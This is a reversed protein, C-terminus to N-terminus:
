NRARRPVDTQSDECLQRLEGRLGIDDLWIRAQFHGENWLETEITLYNRHRGSAALERARGAIFARSEAKITEARPPLLAAPTAGAPPTDDNSPHKQAFSRSRFGKSVSAIEYINM